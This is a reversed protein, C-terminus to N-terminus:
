SYYNNQAEHMCACILLSQKSIDNDAYIVVLLLLDGHLLKFLEGSCKLRKITAILSVPKMCHMCVLM